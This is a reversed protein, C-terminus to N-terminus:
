GPDRVQTPDARSCGLATLAAGRSSYLGAARMLVTRHPPGRAPAPLRGPDGPLATAPWSRGRGGVGGGGRSAPASAGRGATHPDGPSTHLYRTTSRSKPTPHMQARGPVSRPVRLDHLTSSSTTTSQGSPISLSRRVTARPTCLPRTRSFKWSRAWPFLAVKLTFDVPM